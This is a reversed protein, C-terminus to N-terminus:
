STEKTSTSTIRSSRKAFTFQCSSLKTKWFLIDERNKTISKILQIVIWFWEWIHCKLLMDDMNHQIAQLLIKTETELNSTAIGLTPSGWGAERRPGLIKSPGNKLLYLNTWLFLVWFSACDIILRYTKLCGAWRSVLLVQYVGDVDMFCSCLPAEIVAGFRSKLLEASCQLVDSSLSSSGAVGGWAIYIFPLGPFLFRCTFGFSIYLSTLFFYSQTKLEDYSPSNKRQIEKRNKRKCKM